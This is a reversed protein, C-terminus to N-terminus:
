EWTTKLGGEPIPEPPMVGATETLSIVFRDTKSPNPNADPDPVSISKGGEKRYAWNNFGGFMSSISIVYLSGDILATVESKSGQKTLAAKHGKAIIHCALNSAVYVTGADEANDGLEPPIEVSLGLEKQCLARIYASQMQLEGSKFVQGFTDMAARFQGKQYLGVGRNYLQIPEEAKTPQVATKPEIASSPESGINFSNIIADFAPKFKDFEDPAVECIIQFTVGVGFITVCMEQMRGSNTKYSYVVRTAPKNILRIEEGSLFRLGSFANNLDVKSIEIYESPTKPAHKATADGGIHIVTVNNSGELVEGPRANVILGPRVRGGAKGAVAVAMVWSGQPRNEWLLEWDPPYVISFNWQKNFYKKGGGRTGSQKPETTSTQSTGDVKVKNGAGFLKSWWSM